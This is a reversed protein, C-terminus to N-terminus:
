KEMQTSNIVCPAVERRGSSDVPNSSVEILSDILRPVYVLVDSEWSVSYYDIPWNSNLIPVPPEGDLSTKWLQFIGKRNSIFM